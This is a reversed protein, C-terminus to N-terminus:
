SPYMEEFRPDLRLSDMRPDAKLLRKTYAKYLKQLWEFAQTKEGLGTYVTAIDYPSVHRRTSLQKLEILVKQAEARRGAVALTHGLVAVMWPSGGSLERARNLEAIAEEYLGMQELTLGLLYHAPGFSEDM